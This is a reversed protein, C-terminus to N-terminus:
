QKLYEEQEVEAASPRKTYESLDMEKIKKWEGNFVEYRGVVNSIIIDNGNVICNGNIVEVVELWEYGKWAHASALTFFVGDYTITGAGYLYDKYVSIYSNENVVLQFDGNEWSGQLLSTTGISVNKNSACGINIGSVIFLGVILGYFMKINM